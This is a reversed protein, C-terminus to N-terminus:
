LFRNDAPNERGCARCRRGLPVGCHGCFRGDDRNASGCSPCEMSALRPSFDLDNHRSRRTDCSPHFRRHAEQPPM